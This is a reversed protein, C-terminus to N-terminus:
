EKRRFRNLQKVLLFVAFAVILFNIVASIFSGLRLVGPGPLGLTWRTFDVRGFMNLLPNFIDNVLSNVISTFAAGIVVGVALDLANGKVAFEKFEKLM